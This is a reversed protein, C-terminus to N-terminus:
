LCTIIIMMMMMLVSIFQKVPFARRQLRLHKKLYFQLFFVGLTFDNKQLDMAVAANSYGTSTRIRQYSPGTRRVNGSLDFIKKKIVPSVMMGSLSNQSKVLVQPMLIVPALQKLYSHM